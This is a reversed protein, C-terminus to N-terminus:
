KLHYNRWLQLRLWIPVSLKCLYVFIQGTEASLSHPQEPPWSKKLRNSPYFVKMGNLTMNVIEREHGIWEWHCKKQSELKTKHQEISEPSAGSVATWSRQTLMIMSVSPASANAVSGGFSSNIFRAGTPLFPFKILLTIHLFIKPCDKYWNMTIHYRWVAPFTAKWRSPGSESKIRFVSIKLENTKQWTLNQFKHTCYHNILKWYTWHM